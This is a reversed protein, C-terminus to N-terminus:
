NFVTRKPLNIRPATNVPSIYKENVLVRQGQFGRPVGEIDYVYEDFGREVSLIKARRLDVFHAYTNKSDVPEYKVNVLQGIRFLPKGKPEIIMDM